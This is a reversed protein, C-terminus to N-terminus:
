VDDAIRANYCILYRKVQLQRGNRSLNFSICLLQPSCRQIRWGTVVVGELSVPNVGTGNNKRTKKYLGQKDSYITVRKCADIMTCTIQGNKQLRIVRQADYCIIKELQTLIHRKTEQLQLEDQLRGFSYAIAGTARFVLTVLVVALLLGLLVELLLYGSQQRCRGYLSLRSRAM